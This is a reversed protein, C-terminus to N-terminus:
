VVRWAMRVIGRVCMRLVLCLVGPISWCSSLMSMGSGAGVPVGVLVSGVAGRLRDGRMASCCCSICLGVCCIAVGRMEIMDGRRYECAASM